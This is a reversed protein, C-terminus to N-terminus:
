SGDTPPYKERYASFAAALREASAMLEDITEAMWAMATEVKTVM